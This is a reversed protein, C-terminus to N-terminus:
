QQTRVYYYNFKNRSVAYFLSQVWGNILGDFCDNQWEMLICFMDM